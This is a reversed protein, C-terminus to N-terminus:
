AQHLQDAADNRSLWRPSSKGDLLFAEAEYRELLDKARERLVVAVKTLADATLCDAAGVTVSV